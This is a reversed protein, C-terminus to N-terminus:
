KQLQVKFKWALTNIETEEIEIIAHVQGHRMQWAVRKILESFIQEAVEQKAKQIALNDRLEVEVGM